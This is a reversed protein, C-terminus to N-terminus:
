GSGSSDSQDAESNGALEEIDEDRIGNVKQAVDYVRDLAKASKKGLEAIDKPSFLRNGDKDCATMSVLRARVNDMNPVFDKGQKKISQAEFMDRETGTMVRIYLYGNWEPVEVKEFAGSDDAGLIDERSLENM